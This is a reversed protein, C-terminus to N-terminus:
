HAITINLFSVFGHRPSKEKVGVPTSINADQNFVAHANQNSIYISTDLTTPVQAITGVLNLHALMEISYHFYLRVESNVPLPSQQLTNFLKTAEASMQFRSNFNAINSKSDFSNSTSLARFQGPPLSSMGNSSHKPPTSSLEMNTPKTSQAARNPDAVATAQFHHLSQTLWM